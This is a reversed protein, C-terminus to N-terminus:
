IRLLNRKVLTSACHRIQKSTRNGELSSFVTFTGLGREINLFLFTNQNHVTFIQMLYVIVFCVRFSVWLVKPFVETDLVLFSVKRTQSANKGIRFKKLLSPTGNSQINKKSFLLRVTGFYKELPIKSFLRMLELPGFLFVLAINYAM